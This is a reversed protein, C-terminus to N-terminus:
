LLDDRKRKELQKVLDGVQQARSRDAILLADPTDVVILDHVGLLAILKNKAGDVYNGASDQILTDARLANGYADRKQLEYVANWSGVDNWGIDGASIGSVNHAKELVAYDISINECRPFVEAMKAGFQRSSFPPLGAILTATKPLFRRLADLLISTKWFFMGANWYFNGAKLFEAATAANPKERFRTVPAERGAGPAKEFEIYGYGTEAWRPEIGLVVIKGEKAAEFAPKVLKIYDRPKGIVHDAPFVGM